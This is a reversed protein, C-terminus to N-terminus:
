PMRTTPPHQPVVGAWMWARLWFIAFMVGEFISGSVNAERAEETWATAISCCGAGKTM